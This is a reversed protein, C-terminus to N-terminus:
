TFMPLTSFVYRPPPPPCSEMIARPSHPAFVASKKSNFYGVYLWGRSLCGQRLFVRPCDRFLRARRAVAGLGHPPAHQKGTLRRIADGTQRKTRAELMRGLLLLAIIVAAAEFYVPATSAGM